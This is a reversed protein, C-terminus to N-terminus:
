TEEEAELGELVRLVSRPHSGDALLLQQAACLAFGIAVEGVPERLEDPWDEEPFEVAAYAVDQCVDWRAAAGGDEADAGVAAEWEEDYDGSEVLDAVSFRCRCPADGEPWIRRCAPYPGHGLRAELPALEATLANLGAEPDGSTAQALVLERLARAVRATAAYPWGSQAGRREALWAGAHAALARMYADAEVWAPRLPDVVAELEPRQRELARSDFLSSLVLRAFTRQVSEDEIASRAASCADPAEGCDERCSGLGAVARAMRERIRDDEVTLARAKVDVREVQVLLPVDEGDVFVAARGLPLTALALQQRDSMAMAAGLELRDDGAVIRHAIKLTTNKLVDPALKTPIQDVVVIGQGYARV